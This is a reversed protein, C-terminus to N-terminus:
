QDDVPVNVRHSINGVPPSGIFLAREEEAVYLTLKILDTRAGAGREIKGSGGASRRNTVEIVVAIEVNQYVVNIVGRRQQPIVAGVECPMPQADFQDAVNLLFRRPVGDARRDEARDPSFCHAGLDGAPATVM